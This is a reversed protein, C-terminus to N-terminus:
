IGQVWNTAIIVLKKDSKRIEAFNITDAILQRLPSNSIFSSFNFLNTGRELLTGQGSVLEIGRQLLDGIITTSDATLESIPKLPNPIYSFPNFASLGRIRFAGNTKQLRSAVDNLWIQELNANAASGQAKWQSVLFAANYAGVSTGTFVDPELPTFNT